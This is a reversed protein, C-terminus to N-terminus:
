EETWPLRRALPRSRALRRALESSEDRTCDTACEQQSAQSHENSSPTAQTRFTLSWNFLGSTSQGSPTTSRGRRPLRRWEHMEFHQMRLVSILETCIASSPQFVTRSNKDPLPFLSNFLTLLQNDDTCHWEPESGFSRSPIDTMANRSGAIHMTTTPSVRNKRMRLALVRLLQDAVLSGRAAFREVWSVTPQNDSFLAVHAVSAAQLPLVEEMVLWLLVLGACELDSNTLRGQPNRPKVDAKVDAPWPFRFVTPVCAAGEGFIVGGVGHLSADKVGVFSPWAAVLEQCHTPQKFSDQLFTRCDKVASRLKKNRHLFVKQPQLALVKPLLLGRGEPVATFAHRTKEMTSRFEEFPIGERDHRLWKGMTSTIADRKERSLAMTKARGDFEFGLLDKRVSWREIKKVSVPDWAPDEEPPFVEHMGTMVSNAIHDLQDRSTPVALSVFDDVFVELMYRIDDHQHTRALAEYEPSGRTM